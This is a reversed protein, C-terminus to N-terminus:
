QMCMGTCTHLWFGGCGLGENCVKNKCREYVSGCWDSDLSCECDPLTNVPPNPRLVAASNNKSTFGTVIRKMRDYGILVMNREIWETVAPNRNGKSDKYADAVLLCKVEKLKQIVKGDTEESIALDIRDRWLSARKEPSMENFIARQMSISYQQMDSLSYEDFNTANTMLAQKNEDPNNSEKIRINDVKNCSLMVLNVVVIFLISSISLRKM